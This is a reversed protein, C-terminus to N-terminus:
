GPSSAVSANALRSLGYWLSRIAHLIALRDEESANFGDLVARDYAGSMMSTLAAAPIDAPLRGAAQAADIGDRLSRTTTENDVSLLSEGDIVTPGDVFLIRRTIRDSAAAVYADGGEILAELPDSTVSTMGEIVAELRDYEAKIVAAFLAAKDKFHHYLAGRSVGAADAIVPTSTGSYGYEGFLDRGVALLKRRSDESREANTRSMFVYM